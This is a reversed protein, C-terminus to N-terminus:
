DPPDLGVLQRLEATKLFIRRGVRLGPLEGRAVADYIATRSMPRLLALVEDDIPLLPRERPDPLTM